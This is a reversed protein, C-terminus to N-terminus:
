ERFYDDYEDESSTASIPALEEADMQDFTTQLISTKRRSSRKASDDEFPNKLEDFVRGPQQPQADRLPRPQPLAPPDRRITTKPPADVLPAPTTIRPTTGTRPATQM